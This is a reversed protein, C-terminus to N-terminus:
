GQYQRESRNNLYFSHARYMERWKMSLAMLWVGTPTLFLATAGIIDLNPETLVMSIAVAYYLICMISYVRFMNFDNESGNILAHLYKGENDHRGFYEVDELVLNRLIFNRYNIFAKWNRNLM